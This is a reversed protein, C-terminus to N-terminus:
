RVGHERNHTQILQWDTMANLQRRTFRGAHITSPDLLHNIEKQRQFGIVTVTAAAPAAPAAAPTGATSGKLKVTLDPAGGLTLDIRRGSDSVVVRELTAKFTLGYKSATVSVPPTLTITGGNRSLTTPGAWSASLGRASSEWRGAVILGNLLQPVIDPTTVEFDFLGGVPPKDPMQAALHEALLRPVAAVIDGDVIAMAPAAAAPPRLNEPRPFEQPILIRGNTTKLPLGLAQAESVTVSLFKIGAAELERKRVQCPACWRESVLYLVAAADASQPQSQSVWEASVRRQETGPPPGSVDQPDVPTFGDDIEDAAQRSEALAAKAAARAAALAGPDVEPWALAAMLGVQIYILIMM